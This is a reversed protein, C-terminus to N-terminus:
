TSPLMNDPKIWKEIPKVVAEDTIVTVLWRGKSQDFRECKVRAGNLQPAAQLGQLRVISGPAFSVQPRAQGSSSRSSVTPGDSFQPVKPTEGPRLKRVLSCVSMWTVTPVDSVKGTRTWYLRVHADGITVVAGEDRARYYESGDIILEKGSLAEVTDGVDLTQKRIWRLTTAWGDQRSSLAKGSSVWVIQIRKEGDDKSFLSQVTGQDGSGYFGNMENGPLAEVLDGIELQRDAVASETHTSAAGADRVEELTLNDPKVLKEEESELVVLWRGKDANWSKCNASLNNLHTAGTMGCIRVMSGVGITRAPQATPAGLGNRSAPVLRCCGMWNSMHLDSVMGTRTWEVRVYDGALSQVTGADGAIYVERGATSLQHGSLVELTSGVELSLHCIFRVSEKWASAKICWGLGTRAWVIQVRADGDEGTHCSQITGEDGPSFIDPQEYGPLAEVVDGVTLVDM